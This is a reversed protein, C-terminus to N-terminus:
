RHKSRRRNGRERGKELLHWFASVSDAAPFRRAMGVIAIPPGFEGIGREQRPERRPGGSQMDPLPEADMAVHSSSTATDDAAEPAFRRDITRFRWDQGLRVNLGSRESSPYVAGAVSLTPAEQTRGGERTRSREVSAAVLRVSAPALMTRDATCGPVQRGVTRSYELADLKYRTCRSPRRTVVGSFLSPRIRRVTPASTSGKSGRSAAREVSRM